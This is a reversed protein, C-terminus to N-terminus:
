LPEGGGGGGCRGCPGRACACWAVNLSAECVIGEVMVLVLEEQGRAEVFCREM